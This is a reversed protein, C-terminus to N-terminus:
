KRCWLFCLCVVYIIRSRRQVKTARARYVFESQFFFTNYQREILFRSRRVQRHLKWWGVVITLTVLAPTLRCGLDQDPLLRAKSPLRPHLSMSGSSPGKLTTPYHYDTYFSYFTILCVPDFRSQHYQVPGHVKSWEVHTERRSHEIDLSIDAPGTFVAAAWSTVLTYGSVLILEEMREVGLGKRQACNFWTGVHDRIYDQFAKTHIVDRRYGDQPLYLVAGKGWCRYTFSSSRPSWMDISEPERPSSSSKCAQDALRYGIIM